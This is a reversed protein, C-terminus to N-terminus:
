RTLGGQAIAAAKQLRSRDAETLVKSIVIEHPRFLRRLSRVQNHRKARCERIIRGCLNWQDCRSPSHRIYDDIPSFGVVVAHAFDRQPEFAGSRIYEWSGYGFRQTLLGTHTSARREIVREALVDAARRAVRRLQTTTQRASSARFFKEGSSLVPNHNERPFCETQFPYISALPSIATIPRATMPWFRMRLM